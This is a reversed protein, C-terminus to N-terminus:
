ESLNSPLSIEIDYGRDCLLQSHIVPKELITLSGRCLNGVANAVYHPCLPSVYINNILLTLDCEVAIGRENAPLTFQDSPLLITARLEKEHEFSKRKMFLGYHKHGTEIPDNDFDAYLVSSIQIGERSGLSSRLQGITSEIAVGQGSASYLKWMAESEYESKHWCSVGFRLTAERQSKPLERVLKQLRADFHKLAESSRAAFQPRLALMPDISTEQIVKSWADVHSKPLSGESLDQFQAPSAFYLTNTTLLSIFKALDLYKWIKLEADEEM